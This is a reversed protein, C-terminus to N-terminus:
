KAKEKLLTELKDPYEKKVYPICNSWLANRMINVVGIGDDVYSEQKEVEYWNLALNDPYFRKVLLCEPIFDIFDEMRRIGGKGVLRGEFLVGEVAGYLYLSKQEKTLSEFKEGDLAVDGWVGGSFLLLLSLILSLKM